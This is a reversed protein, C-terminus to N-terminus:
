VIRHANDNHMRHNQTPTSALLRLRKILCYVRLKSDAPRQGRRTRVQASGARRRAHAANLYRPRDRASGRGWGAPKLVGPGGGPARSPSGPRALRALAGITARKSAGKALPRATAPTRRLKAGRRLAPRPLWWRCHRTMVQIRAAAAGGCPQLAM